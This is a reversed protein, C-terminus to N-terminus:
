EQTQERRVFGAAAFCRQSVVHVAGLSIVGSVSIRGCSGLAAHVPGEGAGDRGGVGREVTGLLLSGDEWRM